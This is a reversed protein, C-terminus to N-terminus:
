KFLDPKTEKLIALADRDRESLLKSLQAAVAQKTRAPLADFAASDIMYSCQYRFLRRTLDFDRLSRGKGDRKGAAKFAAAFPSSGEISGPLPAADAFTFYAALDGVIRDFRADSTSVRTEWGLYTILNMAHTQHELVM